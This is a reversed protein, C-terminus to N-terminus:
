LVFTRTYEPDAVANLAPAHIQPNGAGIANLAAEMNTLREDHDARFGEIGERLQRFLEAPSQEARIRLGSHALARPLQITM